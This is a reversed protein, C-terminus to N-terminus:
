LANDKIAKLVDEFGGVVIGDVSCALMLNFPHEFDEITMGDNDVYIGQVPQSKKKEDESFREIYQKDESIYVYVKKNLATAYACEWVTGSDAEKGRFPNLNAIVIDAEDISHKNAEFIQKAIDHPKQTFDAINDLPYLGIFGYKQCLQKYRKGIEISDSNFVDPGAIYIKKLEETKESGSIVEKIKTVRINSANYELCSKAIEDAVKRFDSDIAFVDDTGHEAVDFSFTCKITANFCKEKTDDIYEEIYEGCESCIGFGSDEDVDLWHCEGECACMDSCGCGLCVREKKVLILEQIAAPEIGKEDLRKYIIDVDNENLKKM